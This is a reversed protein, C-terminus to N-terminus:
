NETPTLTERLQSKLAPLDHHKAGAEEDQSPDVGGQPMGSAPGCTCGGVEPMLAIALDQSEFMM